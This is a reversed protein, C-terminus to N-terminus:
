QVREVAFTAYLLNGAVTDNYLIPTLTDGATLSVYGCASVYHYGETNNTPSEEGAAAVVSTDGLSFVGDNKLVAIVRQQAPTGGTETLQGNLCTRYYGTAAATFTSGNYESLSDVIESFTVISAGAGGAVFGTNTSILVSGGLISGTVTLNGSIAVHTSVDVDDGSTTINGDSTINGSMGLSGSELDFTYDPTTDNVGVSSGAITFVGATPLDQYWYTVNSAQMAKKIELIQYRIRELEGALSTAQSEASGPYPDSVARMETTTASYDDVGSPTFNNLINNFEANLASATLTQGSSWTTIRSFTAGAWALVGVMGLGALFGFIASRKTKM